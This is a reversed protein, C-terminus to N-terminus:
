KKSLKFAQFLITIKIFNTMVLQVIHYLVGLVCYMANCLLFQKYM